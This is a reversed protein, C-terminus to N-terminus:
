SHLGTARTIDARAPRLCIAQIKCEDCLPRPEGPGQFRRSEVAAYGSVLLGLVRFPETGARAAGHRGGRSVAVGDRSERGARGPHAVDRAQRYSEAPETRRPSGAALPRHPAWGAVPLLYIDRVLGRARPGPWSSAVICPSMRRRARRMPPSLWAPRRPRLPRAPRPPPAEWRAASRTSIV